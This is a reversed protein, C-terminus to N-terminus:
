TDFGSFAEENKVFGFDQLLACQLGTANAYDDDAHYDFKNFAMSCIEAAASWLDWGSNKLIDFFVDASKAKDAREMDRSHSQKSDYAPDFRDVLLDKFKAKVQDFSRVGEVSAETKLRKLTGYRSQKKRTEVYKRYFACTTEYQCSGWDKM